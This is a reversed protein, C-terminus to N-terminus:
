KEVIPPPNLNAGLGALDVPLCQYCECVYLDERARIKAWLMQTQNTKPIPFEQLENSEMHEKYDRSVDSPTDFIIGTKPDRIWSLKDRIGNKSYLFLPIMFKGARGEHDGEFADIFQEPSYFRRVKLGSELIHTYHERAEGKIARYGYKSCQAYVATANYGSDIFVFRPEVQYRDRLAEVDEELGVRGEFVLLSDMNMKWDRIVAWFHPAEGKKASGAQKDVTMARMARDSLGERGKRVAPNLTIKQALPRDDPDYFHCEREQIYRMWPERDGYRIAKLANHKEQILSMWSIYHVSVAELTWSSESRHAGPNHPEGYKGRESLKSREKEDDRFTYGCPMQYRVTSELRNYDYSGDDRKCGESDYRLGGLDPREEEWRTRLPHYLGCGGCPTEWYEQTGATFAQHLQDGIKGANSINFEISNRFATTRGRAKVLHGQEWSHVEENLQFRISDSDLNDPNFAGQMTFNRDAFIVLGNSAKFRDTPWKEFVPQTARLIKEIRKKWREEAKENDAWNYQIDGGGKAKAIWYCLAAEGATSGSSQVPKVATGRRKGTFIDTTCFRVWPISWPTLKPNYHDDGNARTLASGPLRVHEGCWEDGPRRDIPSFASRWAVAMQDDFTALMKRSM